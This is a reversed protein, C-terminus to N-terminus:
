PRAQQDKPLPYMSRPTQEPFFQRQLRSGPTSLALAAIRLRLWRMTRSRRIVPDGLDVHMYQQMDVEVLGWAALLDSM